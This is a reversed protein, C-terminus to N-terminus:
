VTGIVQVDARSRFNRTCDRAVIVPHRRHAVLLAFDIKGLCHSPFERPLLQFVAMGIVEPFIQLQGDVAEGAQPPQGVVAVPACLKFFGAQHVVLLIVAVFVTKGAAVGAM